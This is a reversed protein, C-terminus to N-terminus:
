HVTIQQKLIDIFEKLLLFKITCYEQLYQFVVDDTLEFEHIAPLGGYKLFLSFNEEVAAANGKASRFQVFEEFTLPLVPIEIHRGSLLTALDSALLHANSGAIYIDAARQGSLSAIAKEWSQIEQVEDVFLYKRGTVNKWRSAVINQLDRYTRIADFELSEKDIYLIRSAPIRDNRLREITLKLLTSKGSRRLGTLVKIVPKDQLKGLLDLYSNRAIM